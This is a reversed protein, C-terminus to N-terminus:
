ASHCGLKTDIGFISFRALGLEKTIFVKLGFQPTDPKGNQGKRGLRLVKIIRTVVINSECIGKDVWIAAQLHGSLSAM